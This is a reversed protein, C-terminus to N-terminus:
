HSELGNVPESGQVVGPATGFGCHARSSANRVLAEVFGVSWGHALSSAASTKEYITGWERAIPGYFERLFRVGRDSSARGLAQAVFCAFYPTVRRALRGAAIEEELYLLAEGLRHRGASCSLAAATAHPSDGSKEATLAYCRGLWFAGDFAAPAVAMAPAM